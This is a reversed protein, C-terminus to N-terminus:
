MLHFRFPSESSSCFTDPVFSSSGLFGSPVFGGDFLSGVVALDYASSGLSVIRRVPCLVPVTEKWFKIKKGQPVKMNERSKVMIVAM